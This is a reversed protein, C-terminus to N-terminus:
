KEIGERAKIGKDFPHKIKKIESIYDALSLLTKDPNRGTMVVELEQPKNQLFNLLLESDILNKNYAGIIEDLIILKYEQNECLQLAQKLNNNHLIRCMNKQEETMYLSFCNASKGRLLTIEPIRAISNIEGTDHNKLFQVILVKKGRGSCRLALGLAATTKGKGDGCYIHVLGTNL